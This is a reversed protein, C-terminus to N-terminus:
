KNKGIEEQVKRGLMRIRSKRIISRKQDIIKGQNGIPGIEKKTTGERMKQKLAKMMRDM